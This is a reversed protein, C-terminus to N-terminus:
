DLHYKPLDPSQIRFTTYLSETDSLIPWHLLWNTARQETPLFNPQVAMYVAVDHAWMSM